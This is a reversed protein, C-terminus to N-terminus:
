SVQYECRGPRTPRPAPGPAPVSDFTPFPPQPGMREPSERAPPQLGVLLGWRVGKTQCEVGGLVRRWGKEAIAREAKVTPRMYVNSLDFWTIQTVQICESSDWLQPQGQAGGGAPIVGGPIGLVLGKDCKDGATIIQTCGTESRPPCSSPSLGSAYGQAPSGEHM